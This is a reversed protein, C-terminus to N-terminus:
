GSALEPTKFHIWLPNLWGITAGYILHLVLTSIIYKIPPGLYLPNNPALQHGTGGFGFIGWGIIPSYLVMMVGWLGLALGLGKLLDTNRGFVAVLVISWLMGYGFHVLLALPGVNLGLTGLFAASPPINFPAFGSRIGLMIIIFMILSGLAGVIAAKLWKM